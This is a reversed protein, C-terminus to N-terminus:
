PHSPKPTGLTEIPQRPTFTVGDRTSAHFLGIAPQAGQRQITM